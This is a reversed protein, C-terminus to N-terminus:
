ENSYGIREADPNFFDCIIIKPRGGHRQCSRCEALEKEIRQTEEETPNDLIVSSRHECAGRREELRKVRQELRNM